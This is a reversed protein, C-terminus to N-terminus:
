LHLDVSPPCEVPYRKQAQQLWLSGPQERQTSLRGCDRGAKQPKVFSARFPYGWHHGQGPLSGHVILLDSPQQKDGM